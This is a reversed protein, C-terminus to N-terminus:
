WLKVITSSLSGIIGFLLDYDGQANPLTYLGGGCDSNPNWDPATVVEGNELPWRFGHYFENKNIKCLGYQKM